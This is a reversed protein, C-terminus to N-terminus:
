VDAFMAVNDPKPFSSENYLKPFAIAMKEAISKTINHRNTRVGCLQLWEFFKNCHDCVTRENTKLELFKGMLQYTNQVGANMLVKSNAPGIGPVCELDPQVDSFLFEVLTNDNVTSKSPQFETM